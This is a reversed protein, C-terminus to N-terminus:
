VIQSMRSELACRWWTKKTLAAVMGLILPLVLAVLLLGLEAINVFPMTPAPDPEGLRFDNVIPPPAPGPRHGPTRRGCKAASPAITRMRTGPPCVVPVASRWSLRM